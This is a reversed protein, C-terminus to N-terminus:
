IKVTIRNDTTINGKTVTYKIDVLVDHENDEGRVVNIDKLTAGTVFKSVSDIIENKVNSWQIEDNPEFIYKILDTGFDPRMIRQGKPTLIVHLIESKISDDLNKNIDIFRNDDNLYTFPFKIGFYQTAAM